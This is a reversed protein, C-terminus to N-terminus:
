LLALWALIAPNDVKEVGGSSRIFRAARELRTDDVPHGALRLGVYCLVSLMLDSPGGHYIRWGGDDAQARLITDSAATLERPDSISLYGPLIIDSADAIVSTDFEGKWYGSPHQRSVLLRTAVNLADAAPGDMM